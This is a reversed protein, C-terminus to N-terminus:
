FTVRYSLVPLLGFGDYKELIPSEGVGPQRASRVQNFLQEGQRPQINAARAFHRQTVNYREDPIIERCDCRRRNSFSDVQHQIGRFIEVFGDLQVHKTRDDTVQGATM